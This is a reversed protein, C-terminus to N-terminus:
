NAYVSFLVLQLYSLDCACGFLEFILYLSVVYCLLMMACAPYVDVTMNKDHYFLDTCCPFLVRFRFVIMYLICDVCAVRVIFVYCM